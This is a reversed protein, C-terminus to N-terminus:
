QLVLRERVRWMEALIILTDHTEQELVSDRNPRISELTHFFADRVAKLGDLRIRQIDREATDTNAVDTAM